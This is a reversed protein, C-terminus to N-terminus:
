GYLFYDLLNPNGLDIERCAELITVFFFALTAHYNLEPQSTTLWVPNDNGEIWITGGSDLAVILVDNGSSNKKIFDLCRQQTTAMKYGFVVYCPGRTAGKRLKTRLRCRPLNRIATFKKHADALAISDLTSKVEIVGYAAELPVQQVATGRGLVPMKLGDYIIIDCQPSPQVDRPSFIEGTAVGYANPLNECLFQKLGDERQRGREGRHRITTSVVYRERLIREYSALVNSFVM